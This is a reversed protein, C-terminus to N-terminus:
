PTPTATPLPAPVQASAGGGVGYQGTVGHRESVLALVTRLVGAVTDADDVTSVTAKATDDARITNILGSGQDAGPAGAVVVGKGEAAFARALAALEDTAVRDADDPDAVGDPPVFVLLAGKSPNDSVSILKAEEFGALATREAATLHPKGLLAGALVTAAREYATGTPLTTGPEALRGALDDLVAVETPDLWDDQVNVTATVKGGAETVAGAVDDAVSSPSDPARVIVVRQHDLEGDLLQPSVGSVFAADRKVRSDLELVRARLSGKDSRLSSVQSRLNKVVIPNITYSGLVIGLALALFVAIISVLHYRFNVM